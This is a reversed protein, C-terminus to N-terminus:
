RRAAAIPQVELAKIFEGSGSVWGFLTQIVLLTAEHNSRPLGYGIPEGMCDALLVCSYDRFMADRVTSEVCVSTTCGTVVLYKVGLQKLIADLDTQYFGSFRHKYVVVDDAQPKLEPVIETNWTDRILIRSETGNPARVTEGVGFRLHRVRNPSGETGLNSLDPHFGMKLYIIKVGAHRAATLVKATPGVAKQIMSIDLGARDFLGGKTGFDNQMDCVIVATRAIDIAIPEPKADLRVVRGKADHISGGTRPAPGAAAPAISGPRQGAMALRPAMLASGILLFNRRSVSSSMRSRGSCFLSTGNVRDELVIQAILELEPKPQGAQVATAPRWVIRANLRPPENELWGGDAAFRTLCSM